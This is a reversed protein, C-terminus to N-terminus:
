GDMMVNLSKHMCKELVLLFVVKNEKLVFCSLMSHFSCCATVSDPM